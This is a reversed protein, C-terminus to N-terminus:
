LLGVSRWPTWPLDPEGITDAPAGADDAMLLEMLDVGPSFAQIQAGVPALLGKVSTWGSWSSGVTPQQSWYVQRDLGVTFADLRGDRRSLAQVSGGALTVGGSIQLWPTWGAAGTRRSFVTRGNEDAAFLDINDRTRVAPSLRSGPLSAFGALPSWPLWSGAAPWTATQALRNTDVVFIDLWGPARSCATVHGGPHTMGSQVHFAALWGRQLDWAASMTRGTLDAWFIDIFNEARSVAAVPSGAPADAGSIATWASWAGAGQRFTTYVHLDTGVVVLDVRGPVGSVATVHGGPKTTQGPVLAWPSWEAEKKPREATMIRGNGDTTVALVSGPIPMAIGISEARAALPAYENLEAASWQDAWHEEWSRPLRGARPPCPESRSQRAALASRITSKRERLDAMDEPTPQGPLRINPVMGSELHLAKMRASMIDTAWKDDTERQVNAAMMFGYDYAIRILAPHITLFDHVPVMPTVVRVKVGSPWGGSPYVDDAAIEDLHIELGARLAIDLLKWGSLPPMQRGGARINVTGYRDVPSCSIVWVDDAGMQIAARVPLQERHGADIWLDNKFAVPQFVCGISCSAMAADVVSIGTAKVRTLDYDYLSGDESVYHIEGSRLGVTAMRLRGGKRAWAGIQTTNLHSSILARVPSLDFLGVAEQLIVNFAEKIKDATVQAIAGGVTGGALAGLLTGLPGFVTGVAAGIGAAELANPLNGGGQGSGQLIAAKISPDIRNLWPADIYMDSNRRLSMWIDRLRPMAKPGHALMLGNLSGVSTSVIIDPEIKQGILYDLAGAQFDGRAGGGSLVFATPM